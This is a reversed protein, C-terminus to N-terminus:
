HTLAGVRRAAVMGAGYVALGAAGGILLARVPDDARISTLWAVVGALAALLSTTAFSRIVRRGRAALARRLYIVQWLVSGLFYITFGLAIGEAGFRRGLVTTYGVYLLGELIGMAAFFRVQGLAYIARGTIAAIGVAVLSPAYIRLLASVADSDARTFAGHEFVLRVAPEALAILLAACPAVVMWLSRMGLSATARLGAFDLASVDEAMRPFLVTAPGASVLVGLVGVIRSAYTLESLQGPPLESGLYRELLTSARIFVAAFALPALAAFVARVGPDNFGLWPRWSRAVAPTLLVAQMLLSVTWAVAAGYVGIARGLVVILALNVVAGIVPVVAPWGFRSDIQWISTLLVVLGSGLISPWLIVALGRALERGAPPLGPATLGIIPDAFAAGVLAIFVLGIAVLNLAGSTVRAFELTGGAARRAIAIPVFVVSLSAILVSTLYLPPSLAAFFADSEVSAGFMAAFVFQSAAIGAQAALTLGSVLVMDRSAWRRLPPEAGPAPVPRM